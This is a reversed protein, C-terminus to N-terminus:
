PAYRLGRWSGSLRELEAAFIRDERSRAFYILTAQTRPAHQQLWQLMAYGPTIGSGGAVLLLSPPPMSPLIF